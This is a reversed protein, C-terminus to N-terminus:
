QRGGRSRKWALVGSGIYAITICAQPIFGMVFYIGWSGNMINYKTTHGSSTSTDLNAANLVSYVIRLLLMPLVVPLCAFIYRSSIALDKRIKWLFLCGLTTAVLAVMFLAASAKSFTAGHDYKDENITGDSSPSRDIGGIIGLVLGLMIIPHVLLLFFSPGKKQGLAGLPSYSPGSNYKDTKLSSNAFSLTSSMLPGLAIQYLIQTAMQMDSSPNSHESIYILLAPGAITGAWGRRGYLRPEATLSPPKITGVLESFISM